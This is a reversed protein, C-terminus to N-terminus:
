DAPDPGSEDGNQQAQLQILAESLGEIVFQEWDAANLALPEVQLATLNEGDDVVVDPQLLYRIVRVRKM